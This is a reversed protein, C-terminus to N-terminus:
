AKKKKKDDRGKHKDYPFGRRLSRVDPLIGGIVTKWGVVDVANELVTIFEDPKGRVGTSDPEVTRPEKHECFLVAQIGVPDQADFLIGDPANPYEITVTGQIENGPIFDEIGQIGREKIGQSGAFRKVIKVLLRAPDNIEVIGHVLDGNEVAAVM